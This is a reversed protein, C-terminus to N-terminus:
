PDAIEGNQTPSKLANPGQIRRMQSWRIAGDSYELIPMFFNEFIWDFIGRRIIVNSAESALMSLESRESFM